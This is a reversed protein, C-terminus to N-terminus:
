EVKETVLRLSPKFEKTAARSKTDVDVVQVMSMGSPSQMMFLDGKNFKDKESFYAYHKGNGGNLFVVSITYPRVEEVDSSQVTLIKGTSKEEMVFLGSSNTALYHGYKVLDGDKIEYLASKDMKVEGTNDDYNIYYDGPHPYGSDGDWPVFGSEHRFIEKGSNIYRAKLYRTPLTSIKLVQLPYTGNQLRILDGEKFNYM